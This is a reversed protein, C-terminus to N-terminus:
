VLGKEKLLMMRAILQATSGVGLKECASARHFKVTREAISLKAAIAKNSLGQVVLQAVERERETLSRADSELANNQLESLRRKCDERCWHLVAEKLRGPVVPKLMFDVAGDKMTQVAMDVDGHGTVFIVPLTVGLRRMEAHLELGSMQPMRVDLVLCGAADNQDDLFARAQQYCKVQWGVAGLMFRYSNLMTEDDDVIRVLCAAKVRAEPLDDIKTHRDTM